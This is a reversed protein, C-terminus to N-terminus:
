FFSQMYSPYYGRVQVDPCFWNLIRMHQLNFIVDDPNPTLYYSPLMAVMCGMMLGPYREHVHRCILASAVFQHHLSQFHKQPNDAIGFAPGEYGRCCGLTEVSGHPLTGANIENFTLWYRVKDHWRDVCTTAFRMFHDIAERSAWGDLEEVLGWPIEFHSITVLPQIGHACLCDIVRDYFDLGAQNPEPELGTPFLRTWNISMRFVKFGMEAFLEIDEEYHHYFDIAEHSPYLTGSAIDRTLMRPAGTKNDGGTMHDYVSAGKGDVDWAGEIQNAATAGGWLFGEPFAM